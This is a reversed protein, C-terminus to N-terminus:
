RLLALVQQPMQNAQAVMANAAQQLVQARSLNATEKAFDADLIRSRSASLNESSIEVNQITAQFRNQVAGLDARGSNVQSLAADITALAATAGDVTSLNVAAISAFSSRDAASAFVDTNAEETTIAGLTSTLEVTGTKVASGADALTEGSFDIGITTAGDITFAGIGINRGDTTTLTIENKANTSSFTATVGTEAAVGNIASVLSSLDNQDTVEASIAQGNLEFSVTGAETLGSLTASNTATATVGLSSAAGGIAAAIDKASANAAYSITASFDGVTLALDTEEAIGNDTASGAVVTNMVTGATSLSQRGLSSARADTIRDLTITQSQNAGVQFAQSSFSGDLLKIGNFETQTGVRQIEAIRAAAEAQLAARDSASNSANAAQVALERIRQLNDAASGLAGEATQTLSIADNANRAAVTLGRIQTTFRESIALGAADDKASNIRLGSSLRNIATSLDSQVRGANRQATLTAINSNIVQAM